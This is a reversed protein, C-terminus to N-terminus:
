AMKRKQKQRIVRATQESPTSTATTTGELVSPSLVEPTTSAEVTGPPTSTAQTSTGYVTGTDAPTSTAEVDQTTTGTATEVFPPTTTADSEVTSDTTTAEEGQAEESLTEDLVGPLVVPVESERRHRSLWLAVAGVGEEWSPYMREKTGTNGVNGPNFTRAGVGLTGYMSDNEMLALMLRADVAYRAAAAFVMAGTVPSGPVASQIYLDIQDPSSMPGMKELISQIKMEHEPDTAYPAIDYELLVRTADSVVTPNFAAEIGSKVVEAESFATAAAAQEISALLKLKSLTNQVDLIEADVSNIRELDGSQFAQDKALLLGNQRNTLLQILYDINM